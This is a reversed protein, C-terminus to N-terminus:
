DLTGTPVPYLKSRNVVCGSIPVLKPIKRGEGTWRIGFHPRRIHPSTDMDKGITYGVQGRRHARDVARQYEQESSFKRNRDRKLLIPETFDQNEKLLSVGLAIKFLKADDESLSLLGPCVKTIYDEVIEGSPIKARMTTVHGDYVVFLVTLCDKDGTKEDLVFRSHFVVVWVKGENSVPERGRRFCLAISSDGLVPMSEAPIALSTRSLAESVSPYVRYYPRNSLKWCKSLMMLHPVMLGQGWSILKMSHRIFTEEKIPSASHFM